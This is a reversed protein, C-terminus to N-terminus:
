FRPEERGRGRPAPHKTRRAHRQEDAGDRDEDRRASVRAAAVVIGLPLRAAEFQALM